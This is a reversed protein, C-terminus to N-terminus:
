NTDILLNGSSDVYLPVPTTGDSESLAIMVTERNSDRLADDGGNDSGTAGNLVILANTSENAKVPTITTGNTNLVGLITRVGNNDIAANAM